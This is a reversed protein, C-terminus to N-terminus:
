SVRKLADTVEKAGPALRLANQFSQKAEAIRGEKEYIIGLWYWARALPPEDDAPQYALYKKLAEEGRGYNSGSLGSLQGQRFYAPMYNPDLRLINEIEEFAKKYNKEILLFVAYYYHPKASNPQERIADAYEKHALGPKKQRTYITAFARHGALSDRKKIEAAQEQAKEMDGGVIGPAVSYFELLAFRSEISNPDLQVSVELEHQAKKALSLQKFINAKQAARGYSSGLWYHYEANNPQLRVAQEFLDVAKEADGQRMAQRGGEFLAGATSTTAALLVAAILNLM